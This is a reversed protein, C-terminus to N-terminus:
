KWKLAVELIDLEVALIMFEREGERVRNSTAVLEPERWPLALAVSFERSGLIIRM